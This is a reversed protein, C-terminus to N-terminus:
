RPYKGLTEQAKEVSSQRSGIVHVVSGRKLLEECLGFGIGSTGGTVIVVKDEFTNTMSVDGLFHVHLTWVCGPDGKELLGKLTAAVPLAALVSIISCQMPHQM